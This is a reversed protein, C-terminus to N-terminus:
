SLNASASGANSASRGPPTRGQWTRAGARRAPSRSIPLQIRNTPFRSRIASHRLRRKWTRHVKEQREALAALANGLEMEFLGALGARRIVHGSGGLVTSLHCQCSPYHSPGCRRVYGM